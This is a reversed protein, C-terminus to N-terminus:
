TMDRISRIPVVLTTETGLLIRIFNITDDACVSTVMVQGGCTGRVGPRLRAGPNDWAAREGPQGPAGGQRRSDATPPSWVLKSVGASPLVPAVVVSAM